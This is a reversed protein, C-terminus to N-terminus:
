RAILRTVEPLLAEAVYRHGADNIHDDTEFHIGPPPSASLDIYAVGSESMRAALTPFDRAGRIPLRAFLVEAGTDRAETVINEILVTNTEWWKGVGARYGAARDAARVLGLLASHRELWRAPAPPADQATALRLGQGTHVFTPKAMGEVTRFATLSRDWDQDIFAVVVVRPKLPLAHHRMVMWMQDVGMGPLAFNHVRAGPLSQALLSAFTSDADVGTGFAFSDGVVAIVPDTTAGTSTATSARFGEASARYVHERGDIIWRFEHEPQMRWGVLPDAVFNESPRNAFEGVYVPPPAWDAMPGMVFRVLVEGAAVAALFTLAFGAALMAPGRLTLRRGWGRLLATGMLILGLECVVIAIRVRGSEISGDSSLIELLPENFLVGAVVLTWGIRRSM